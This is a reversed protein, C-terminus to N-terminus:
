ARRAQLGPLPPLERGLFHAPQQGVLRLEIELRPTPSTGRSGRSVPVTWTSSSPIWGAANADAFDDQVIAPQALNAPLRFVYVRDGGTAALTDGHFSMSGGLGLGPRADSALFKVVPSFVESDPQPAYVSVSGSNAGRDEDGPMGLALGAAGAIRNLDLDDFRFPFDIPRVNDVPRWNDPSDELFISAGGLGDSFAAARAGPGTALVSVKAGAQPGSPTLYDYLADVQTWFVSNSRRFLYLKGSVSPDLPPEHLEPTPNGM